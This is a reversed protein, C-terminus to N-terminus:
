TQWKFIICLQNYCLHNYVIVYLNSDHPRINIKLNKLLLILVLARSIHCSSWFARREFIGKGGPWQLVQFDLKLTVAKANPTRSVKDFHRASPNCQLLM